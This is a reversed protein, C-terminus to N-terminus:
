LINIKKYAVLLINRGMALFIFFTGFQVYIVKRPWTSSPLRRNPANKAKAFLGTIKQEKSRLQRFKKYSLM